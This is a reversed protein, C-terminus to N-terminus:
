STTAETAIPYLAELSGIELGLFGPKVVMKFYFLPTKRVKQFLDNIKFNKIAIM